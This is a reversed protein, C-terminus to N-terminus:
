FGFLPHFKKTKYKKPQKWLEYIGDFNIEREESEKTYANIILAKIHGTIAWKGKDSLIGEILGEGSKMYYNFSLIPPGCSTRYSVQNTNISDEKSLQIKFSKADKSVLWILVATVGEHGTGSCDFYQEYKFVIDEGSKVQFFYKPNVSDRDIQAKYVFEKEQSLPCRYFTSQGHLLHSYLYLILFFVTKM